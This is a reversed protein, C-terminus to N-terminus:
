GHRERRILGIGTALLWISGPLLALYQVPFMQTALVLVALVASTWGIWRQVSGHRLSALAVAGASLGLGAWVWPMTSFVTLAAAVTDPDSDAVDRSLYWFLETSIGGGVLAMTATLLTGAFAVTPLLSAVPEQEVLRRRLGAGFVVLLAAALSTLVQVAWVIGGSGQLETALVLNDAMVAGSTEVVMPAIVFLALGCVGALAGAWAWGNRRVPTNDDPRLLTPPPSHTSM